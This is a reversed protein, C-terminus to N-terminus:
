LHKRVPNERRIVGMKQLKEAAEASLVMSLYDSELEGRQLSEYWKRWHGGTGKAVEGQEALSSGGNAVKRYFQDKGRSPFHMISIRRTKSVRLGKPAEVIRHNGQSVNLYGNKTAYMVKHHTRQLYRNNSVAEIAKSKSPAVISYVADEPYKEEGAKDELVINVAKVKLVEAPAAQMFATKLNGSNALWFEDADCHFVISAQHEDVALQGMRNVWKAQSYDTSPEDILHLVGRSQYEALAEKTGDVSANDTAIVFDVGNSLHFDINQRVIDIEDRVLLTMVLREHGLAADDIKKPRESCLRLVVKKFVNM